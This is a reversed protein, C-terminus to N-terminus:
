LYTNMSILLERLLLKNNLTKDIIECMIEMINYYVITDWDIKNREQM